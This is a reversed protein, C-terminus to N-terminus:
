DDQGSRHNVPRGLARRLDAIHKAPIYRPPAFGAAHWPANAGASAGPAPPSTWCRRGDSPRCKASKMTCPLWLRPDWLALTKRAPRAPPWVPAASSVTRWGSRHKASLHPQPNSQPEAPRLISWAPDIDRYFATMDVALDCLCEFGRLPELVIEAQQLDLVRTMCALRPAGNIMCACTGCASHHCSHRYMLSSDLTLRIKELSDLVTMGAEIELEFRQFRPPDIHGPKYRRIRFRIRRTPENPTQIGTPSM